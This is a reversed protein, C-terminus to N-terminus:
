KDNKITIERKFMEVSFLDDPIVYSSKWRKCHPQKYAEWVLESCYLADNEPKFEYDYPIQAALKNRCYALADPILEKKTPKVLCLSDTRMFTLIDDSTVGGGAAHIVNFKNLDGVYIGVHSWYGPVMRSGIYAHYRRFIIDGPEIVELISRQHEGNIRYGSQGWFVIGGKYLRINGVSNIVSRSFTKWLGM